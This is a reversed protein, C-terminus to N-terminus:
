GLPTGCTPCGTAIQRLFTLLEAADSSMAKPWNRSDHLATWLAVLGAWTAGEPLVLPAGCASCTPDCLTCPLDHTDAEIHPQDDVCHPCCPYLTM